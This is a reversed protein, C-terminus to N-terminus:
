GTERKKPVSHFMTNKQSKRAYIWLFIWLLGYSCHLQRDEHGMHETFTKLLFSWEIQNEPQITTYKLSLHNDAYSLILL